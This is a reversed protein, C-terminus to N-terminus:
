SGSQAPMPATVEAAMSEASVRRTVRVLANAILLSAVLLLTVGFDM